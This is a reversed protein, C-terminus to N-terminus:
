AYNQVTGTFSITMRKYFSLSDKYLIFIKSILYVKKLYDFFKKNTCLLTLFLFFLNNMINKLLNSISTILNQNFCRCKM